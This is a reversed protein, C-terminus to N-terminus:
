YRPLDFKGILRNFNELLNDLTCIEILFHNLYKPSMLKTLNEPLTSIYQAMSDSTKHCYFLLHYSIRSTKQGCSCIRDRNPTMWFRLVNTLAQRPLKNTKMSNTVLHNKYPLMPLHKLLVSSFFCDYAMSTRVDQQWHESWITEKILDKIEAYPINPIHNWLHEIKYRLLIRKVTNHFGNPLEDHNITRYKHMMGLPKDPKSNCLKVYYLLVHLNM